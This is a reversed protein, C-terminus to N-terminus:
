AYYWQATRWLEMKKESDRRKEWKEQIVLWGPLRKGPTGAREMAFNYDIAAGTCIIHQLVMDTWAGKRRKGLDMEGAAAGMLKEWNTIIDEMMEEERRSDGIEM